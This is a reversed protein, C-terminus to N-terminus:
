LVALFLLLQARHGGRSWKVLEEAVTRVSLAASPLLSGHVDSPLRPPAAVLSHAPQPRGASGQCLNRVICAQCSRADRVASSAPSLGDAPSSARQPHRTASEPTASACGGEAHLVQGKSLSRLLRRPRMAAAAQHCCALCLTALAAHASACNSRGM